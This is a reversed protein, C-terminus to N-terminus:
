ELGHQANWPKGNAALTGNGYSLTLVYRRGEVRLRGDAVHKALWRDPDAGSGQLYLAALRRATEEPASLELNARLARRLLFPNNRVTENAGSLYIRAAATVPGDPTELRADALRAEPDRALVTPLEALVAGALAPLLDRPAVGGAALRGASQELDALAAAHLGSVMIRAVGPGYEKGGLRLREVSATGALAAVDGDREASAGLRLGAVAPEGGATGARELSAGLQGLWLGDEDRRASGVVDTTGVMPLAAGVRTLAGFSAHGEIASMDGAAALEIKGGGFRWGGAELAPARLEASFSGDLGLDYDGTFLVNGPDSGVKEARLHARVLAPGFDGQMAALPLPGHAIHDTVALSLSAPLAPFRRSLAGLDIRAYLRATSDFWGRRYEKLSLAGAGDSAVLERYRMETRGGVYWPLALLLAPVLLALILLIRKM